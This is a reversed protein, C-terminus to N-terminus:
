EVQTAVSVDEVGALKIADLAAIVVGVNAEKDAQIVVAGGPSEARLSEIVQRLVPAEVQRKDVWIKNDASVAVFVNAEPKKLAMTAEPSRVEIGAERVFAATTIFFILMIFVVDLMPTMDIQAEEAQGRSKKAM